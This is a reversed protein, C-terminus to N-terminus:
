TGDLFPKGQGTGYDFGALYERTWNPLEMEHRVDGDM